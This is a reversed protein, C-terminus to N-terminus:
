ITYAITPWYKFAQVPPKKVVMQMSWNKGLIKKPFGVGFGSPSSIAALDEESAEYLMGKQAANTNLFLDQQPHWDSMTLLM